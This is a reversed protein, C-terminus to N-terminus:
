VTEKGYCNPCLKQLIILGNELTELENQSLKLLFTDIHNDVAENIKSTILSGKETASIYIKRRDNQDNTRNVYGMKILKEILATMQPKTISLIDVFETIYLYKNEELLKLVAFHQHSFDVELNKIISKVFENNLNRCIKTPIDMLIKKLEKNNM